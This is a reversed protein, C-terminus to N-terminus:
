KLKQIAEFVKNRNMIKKSYKERYEISLYKSQRFRIKVRDLFTIEKGFAEVKEETKIEPVITGVGRIVVNEETLVSKKISDQVDSWIRKAEKESYGKEILDEVVKNM